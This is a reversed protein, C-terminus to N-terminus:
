GNVGGTSVLAPEPRIMFIDKPAMSSMASIAETEMERPLLKAAKAIETKGTGPLVVINGCMSPIEYVPSDNSSFAFISAVPAVATTKGAFFANSCGNYGHVDLAELFLVTGAPFVAKGSVAGEIIDRVVEGTGHGAPGRELWFVTRGGSPRRSSVVAVPRADSLLDAFVAMVEAADSEPGIIVTGREPDMKRFIDVLSCSDRKM